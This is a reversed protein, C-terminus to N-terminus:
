RNGEMKEKAKTVDQENIGTREKIEAMGIGKDILDKANEMSREHTGKNRWRGM